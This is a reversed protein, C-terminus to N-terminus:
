LARLMEEHVDFYAICSNSNSSVTCRIDNGKKEPPWSLHLPSSEGRRYNSGISGCPFKLTGRFNRLESHDGLGRRPGIPGAPVLYAPFIRESILTPWTYGVGDVPGGQMGLCIQGGAGGRGAGGVGYHQKGVRWTEGGEM